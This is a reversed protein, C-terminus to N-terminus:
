PVPCPQAARLKSAKKSTASGSRRLARQAKRQAVPQQHNDTATTSTSSLAPIKLNMGRSSTGVSSRPIPRRCQSRARLNSAPRCRGNCSLPRLLLQQGQGLALAQEGGDPQAEAPRTADGVAKQKQVEARAVGALSRLLVNHLAEERLHERNGAHQGEDDIRGTQPLKEDLGM